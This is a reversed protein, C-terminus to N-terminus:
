PKRNLFGILSRCFKCRYESQRAARAMWQDLGGSVSPDRSPPSLPYGDSDRNLGGSWSLAIYHDEAIENWDAM